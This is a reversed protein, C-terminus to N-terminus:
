SNGIELASAAKRLFEPHFRAYHRRTTDLSEHGMYEAIQELPVGAQAMYVGATHRLVYPGVGELGARAAAAKVGNKISKIPRGDVEIVYDTQAAEKALTLTELATDNIPVTARGKRTRQELNDLRIIRRELDVRDWTLQLIHKPRGATCIALVVFVKVHFERTGEILRILEDRQLYRERPRPQPPKAIHLVPGAVGQRELRNIAATIYALDSRITADGCGHNRRLRTFREVEKETLDAPTLCDWGVRRILRGVEEIRKLNVVGKAERDKTYLAYIQDLSLTQQTLAQRETEENLRRVAARAEKVDRTIREGKATYLKRRLRGKGTGFVAIFEGGLKGLRWEDSM